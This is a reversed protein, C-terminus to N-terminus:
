FQLNAIISLDDKVKINFRDVDCRGRGGARLAQAQLVLVPGVVAGPHLAPHVGASSAFTSPVHLLKQLFELAIKHQTSAGNAFHSISLYDYYTTM